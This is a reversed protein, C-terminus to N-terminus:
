LQGVAKLYETKSVELKAQANVHDANAKQWLAQAELYDALTEMGKDYQNKSLRMHEEAQQISRSTLETEFEAEDLAHQAQAVQLTMKEEVDLRQLEAMKEELRASRVKNRGKGWEFLPVSVSVLASFGGKSVMKEDNLRLGDLYNYGVRLGVTPLYDGRTLRTEQKKLDIQQSLLLYEPRNVIDAGPLEDLASRSNEPFSGSLELETDLPFGIIQCLNMRALRIANEARRLQLDAENLKVQVKLLDNRQKLGVHYANEVNRLLEGVVEKYAEATTHLERVQIYTWYARDTELIIETRTLEQNTQSMERGIQSMRYAAMIKGGAFLPQELQVGAMATKNLSFEIPTDPMFAYQNFIPNAETGPILNPILNGSEDPVFTPLYGGPISFDSKSSALYYMGSASFKPLFNARYAKVELASKETQRGSIAVQKNHALAMERCQELNFVQQAQVTVSLVYCSLFLVIYKM